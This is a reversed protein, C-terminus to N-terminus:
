FIKKQEEMNIVSLFINFKLKLKKMLPFVINYNSKFGDDFTIIVEKSSRKKKFNPSIEDFRYTKYKNNVLFKMHNKFVSLETNQFSYGKGDDVVDHYYIIPIKNSRKCLNGVFPFLVDLIIKKANM